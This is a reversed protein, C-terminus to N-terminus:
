SAALESDSNATDRLENNGDDVAEVTNSKKPKAKKPEKGLDYFNVYSESLAALEEEKNEVIKTAIYNEQSVGVYIIKPYEIM